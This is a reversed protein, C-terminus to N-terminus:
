GRSSWFLRLRGCLASAAPKLIARLGHRKLMPVIRWWCSYIRRLGEQQLRLLEAPALGNVEMTASGYRQYRSFDHTLLKLGHEGKEAMEFLETGPYPVAIGYTAHQIDRSHCLFEVTREASERTEGPLGLMVSNITEIGLQNNIRNSEVYSELPVEKRIIKRIAPDATELGFSIRILGCEVLRAALERDWLNARTGGEFTFDLGRRQIGDCLALVFDRQATLTDDVFNVHRIGMEEVVLELEGLVNELSRRRPKKGYLENACFVCRYPCGRSMQLSTYQKKGRLTGVVYKENPLLHRAPYPAEDLNELRPADGRYIVEGGRRHAIGPVDISREGLAFRRLFEPFSRECEGIVLYDFSPLFAKERLITAHTGGVIVPIDWQRKFEEAAATAAHFFPTTATLGILDPSFAAIRRVLEPLDLSEAEGDLLQVEWGWREALAGVLALNLPPFTSASKAVKQFEGFAQCWAPFVLSLRM